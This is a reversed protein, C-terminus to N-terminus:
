ALEGLELWREEKQELTKNLEGLEISLKEIEASDLGPQNFTEILTAKRSELKEIEKELRNLEKRQEYTLKPRDDTKQPVQTKKKQTNSNSRQERRAEQEEKKRRERYETYNGNYDKIKGNGEFVFVHDVVKDMFYRDHSVILICGPFDLLFNELVNLTIIDLDNTPEDLILFNPNQMLVTLLFLRRREGGSLQAVHVQQQERSFMFRELLGAASLKHGNELPIYEAIDTIADIVRKGDEIQIGEQTYYGFKVTGGVVVKGGDPRIEKTLLRLFTTKGVGNPGVIGVREKKRFKYFFDKVIQLDGYAKSIYEAELIKSGLRSGKIDIHIEQADLKQHAKDKIEYFKDVRSKAKTGRAKPMRRIWNLERRFLKQYKDLNALENEHRMSKKELFDSYSGRYRYLQGRDLELIEGCVRELFYRDHTVMFLTLNPRQLYTELWEIMDLDLHNTPEDLILFDPEAILLRALALRKRQGGSLTAIPQNFQHINLKGLIEKIQAEYDWAKLDEMLALAAQMEKTDEPFSMAREYRKVARVTENDAQFVAELVTSGLDFDPEQELYGIRLDKKIWMKSNEGEPSEMDSLVRLLTTKGTGNQAVLAIKQGKSIQLSIDKFLVKDGYTKSANEISLYNM